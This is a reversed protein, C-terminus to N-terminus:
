HEKPKGRAVPPVLRLAPQGAAPRKGQPAAEAASPAPLLLDVEVGVGRASQAAQWARIRLETAMRLAATNYSGLINVLITDETMVELVMDPRAALDAVLEPLLAPDSLRFLPM